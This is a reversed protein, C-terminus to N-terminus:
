TKKQKQVSRKATMDLVDDWLGALPPWLRSREHGFADEAHLWDPGRVVLVLAILIMPAVIWIWNGPEM